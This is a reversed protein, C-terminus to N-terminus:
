RNARILLAVGLSSVVIILMATPAAEGINELSANEYVRTALTNFNFPRLLLTAPLEKVCDVFVLLLATILSGNILPFYVTRLTGFASKGLTRAAIPLSPPIRGMASDVAGQAVAFFRVSYAFIIAFGSGTMLLGIERGTLGLVLDAIYNDLAAMPILIGLGLVAGPAAYGLTTLPIVISTVKRSMSRVGYVMFIAAVVTAVAATGGTVVTNALARLLGPDALAGFNALTHSLMVGVPLLFGAAVPLTCATTALYRAGGKVAQPEVPASQRISRHHRARRRSVKEVGVLFLVLVFVLVSIQAAGGVNYSELWVSFIGTTLTQVAFYEVAGFDAMTEMMVLAVGAAISPRIMPLAVAFIRRRVSAGLTQAIEFHNRSLEKFGARALMYVYPYLAASLVFIAGGLSRIEPFFYDSANDWGFLARLGTQLPGAYELFDVLAYAGVYAPISLPLFLAWELHRRLPFKYMTVLWATAVGVVAACFGVAFMLILTNSLYRPLTTSILHRWIDERPTTALVLVTGIPFLVLLAILISASAILKGSFQTGM